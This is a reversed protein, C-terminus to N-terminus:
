EPQLESAIKIGAAITAFLLFLVVCGGIEQGKLWCFSSPMSAHWLTIAGTPVAIVTAMWMIAKM